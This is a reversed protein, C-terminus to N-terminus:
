THSIDAIVGKEIQTHAAHPKFLGDRYYRAQLQVINDDKIVSSKWALYAQTQSANICPIRIAPRELFNEVNPELTSVPRKKSDCRRSSEIIYKTQPVRQIQTTKEKSLDASVEGMHKFAREFEVSSLSFEDLLEAKSKGVEPEGCLKRAYLYAALKYATSKAFFPSNLQLLLKNAMPVASEILGFRVGMDSM